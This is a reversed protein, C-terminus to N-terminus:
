RKDKAEPANAFESARGVTFMVGNPKVEDIVKLSSCVFDESPGPFQFNLPQTVSSVM